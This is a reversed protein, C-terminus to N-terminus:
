IGSPTDIYISLMASSMQRVLRTLVTLIAHMRPVYLSSAHFFIKIREFSFLPSFSSDLSTLSFFFFLAPM